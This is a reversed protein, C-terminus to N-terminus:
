DKNSRKWRTEERNILREINKRHRATILAAAIVGVAIQEPTGGLGCMLIPICWAAVLSALSVYGFAAVVSLFVVIAGACALPQLACFVGLATAVGKGGGFRLFVSFQHGVVAALGCAEPLGRAGEALIGAAVVPAAGKLADLILTAVGWGLGLNRAVNTAGINGSGFQRVDIRAVREGIVRGFPISGLLYSLVACAAWVVPDGGELRQGCVLTKLLFRQVVEKDWPGPPPNTPIM